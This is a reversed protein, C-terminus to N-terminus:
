KFFTGIFSTCKWALSMWKHSGHRIVGFCVALLLWGFIAILTLALSLYILVREKSTETLKLENVADTFKHSLFFFTSKESVSFRFIPLLLLFFGVHKWFYKVKLITDSLLLVLIAVIFMEIFVKYISLKCYVFYWM